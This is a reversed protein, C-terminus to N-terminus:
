RILAILSFGVMGIIAVISIVAWIKQILKRNKANFIM